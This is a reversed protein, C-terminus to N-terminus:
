GIPARMILPCVLNVFLKFLVESLEHLLLIGEQQIEPVLPTLTGNLSQHLRVIDNDIVALAVGAHHISYPKVLSLAKHELVIVHLAKDLLKSRALFM